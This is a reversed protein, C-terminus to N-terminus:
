GRGGRAGAKNQSYYGPMNSISEWKLRPRIVGPAQSLNAGRGTATNEIQFSIINDAKFLVHKQDRGFVINIYYKGSNLLCGPIEVKLRYVACDVEHHDWLRRGSEFIIQDEASRVSMTFDLNIKGALNEFEVEFISGTDVTILDEGEPPKISVSRLVINENRPADGTNDTWVKESEADM